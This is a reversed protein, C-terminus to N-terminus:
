VARCADELWALEEASLRPGVEALVRAHYANLWDREADTLLKADVLQRDIPAFTLTEFSMMARDGGAPKTAPQVLVLNEIRIGFAGEKYFGPENSIIMGPKLEVMSRKSISQPGEHVSLYSGVGHGTGHDFDLGADWLARRAFPDLDVGRTGVPFLATALGIHGKLVRTFRDRMEETPKGVAITRTIDTTGDAYQAGSDVLYLEGRALKRNTEETVRYHVIAGNPGSGSITDFSIERLKKTEARFGELKQAVAIEDVSGKCATKDLWALFQCMAVADRKHATRMGRIEVKNKIAKPLLCPDSGDVITRAGGLQRGIWVPCTERHVRVTKGAEKLSLLRTKFDDPTFLKASAKLHAKAEDHLKGSAIFLEVKGKAPLIAFCLVVPNHAVDSGRINLLWCISDPATLIAADQGAENLEQQLRKIKDEATEGALSVPQVIIPELPPAPRDKGWNRDIPNRTVAKLRIGHTSLQEATREIEAISHLWPDYGVTGGSEGLAEILWDAATNGPISLYEFLQGPTQVRAQVTYRGDVFLAASDSTIAAFGASGTFGTIWALRESSPAVYEGRHEDGRPVLFGNLKSKNLLKRLACLRGPVADTASNTEFSQYMEREASALLASLHATNPLNSWQKVRDRGDRRGILGEHM